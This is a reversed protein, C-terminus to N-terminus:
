INTYRRQIKLCLAIHCERFSTNPFNQSIKNTHYLYEIHWEPFCSYPNRCLAHFYLRYQVVGGSIQRTHQFITGSSQPRYYRQNTVAPIILFLTGALPMGAAKPTFM